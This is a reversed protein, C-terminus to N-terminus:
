LSQSCTDSLNSIFRSIYVILALRSIVLSGLKVNNDLTINFTQINQDCHCTGESLHMQCFQFYSNGTRLKIFTIRCIERRWHKQWLNHKTKKRRPYLKEVIKVFMKRTGRTSRIHESWQYFWMMKIGWQVETLWFCCCSLIICLLLIWPKM